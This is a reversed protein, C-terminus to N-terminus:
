YYFCIANEKIMKAPPESDDLPQGRQIERIYDELLQQTKPFDDEDSLEDVEEDKEFTEDDGDILRQADEKSFSARVRPDALLERTVDVRGNRAAHRIAENNRATPDVRRDKLLVRVIGARGARSAQRIAENDRATPDVRYDDLLLQVTEESYSFAAKRIAYNNDASPNVRRNALLLRVTEARGYESAVRIAYNNNEAPDIRRDALLIRVFEPSRAEAAARLVFGGGTSPDVRPDAVVLRFLEIREYPKMAFRLLEHFNVTPDARGDKLLVEVVGLHGYYSAQRIPDNERTTPDVRPDLLLTQVVTTYGAKSADRIAENDSVSLDLGRRLLEHMLSAFGREAAFIVLRERLVRPPIQWLRAIRGANQPNLVWDLIQSRTAYWEPTAGLDDGLDYMVDVLALSQKSVIEWFVDQSYPRGEFMEALYGAGIMQDKIMKAPPESDDLPQGRQIGRIYDELLRHVEKDLGRRSDILDQADEKSFKARVRPDALL